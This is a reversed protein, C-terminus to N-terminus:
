ESCIAEIALTKLAGPCPDGLNAASIPISCKEEGICAKKVMSLINTHCTGAKFSGCNGEPSGFSAFKISTIRWGQECNLQAEPNQSGFGENPIWSDAPRPDDESVF